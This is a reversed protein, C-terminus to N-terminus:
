FKNVDIYFLNDKIEKGLFKEAMESFSDPKDSVYFSCNGKDKDSLLDKEKLLDYVYRATEKGPDILNVNEGLYESISAKLLPYHTCGLIVTDAKEEKIEKLYKEIVSKVVPDDPSTTGGEVLPVFLPCAQEMIKISDDIHRIKKVYSKSKITAMTGLIAIKKNKTSEVAKICTPALVGIFEGEIADPANDAVSSVTGCAAIITKVGFSKLFAIDQNTYKLITEQSKNGYPVRNTDGFYVIDENPMIEIIEKVATLGGLGSDFVGIPRHKMDNNM